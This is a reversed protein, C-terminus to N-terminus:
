TKKGTCNRRLIKNKWTNSLSISKGRNLLFVIKADQFLKVLFGFFVSLILFSCINKLICSFRYFQHQVQVPKCHYCYKQTISTPDAPFWKFWKQSQTTVSYWKKSQTFNLPCDPHSNHFYSSEVPQTILFQSVIKM